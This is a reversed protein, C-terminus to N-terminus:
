VIRNQEFKVRAHSLHEDFLTRIFKPSEIYVNKITVYFTRDSFSNECYVQLQFQKTGSNCLALM